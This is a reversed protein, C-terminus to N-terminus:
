LSLIQKWEPLKKIQDVSIHQLNKFCSYPTINQATKIDVGFIDSDTMKIKLQRPKLKRIKSMMSGDLGRNLDAGWPQWKVRDLIRKSLTRGMGITEGLRQKVEYGKWYGLENKQPLYYYADLTGILDYGLNMGELFLEMYSDSIIDDSGLIMVYDMGRLVKMGTNFKAGLPENPYEIYALEYEKALSKSKIGESGVILPLINYKKLRQMSQAFVRFVSERQWMCSLIAVKM